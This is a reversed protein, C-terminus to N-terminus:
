CQQLKEHSLEYEKEMKVLRGLLVQEQSTSVTALTQTDLELAETEVAGECTKNATDSDDNGSEAGKDLDSSRHGNGNELLSAVLMELEENREALDTVEQVLEGQKTLLEDVVETSSQGHLSRIEEDRAEITTRLENVSGEMDINAESLSANSEILGKIQEVQQELLESLEDYHIILAQRSWTDQRKKPEPSMHLSCYAVLVVSYLRVSRLLYKHQSRIIYQFHM